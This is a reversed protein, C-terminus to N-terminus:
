DTHIKIAIWHAVLRLLALWSDSIMPEMDGQNVFDLCQVSILQPFHSDGWFSFM